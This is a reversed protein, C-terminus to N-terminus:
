QRLHEIKADLQAISHQLDPILFDPTTTTLQTAQLQNRTQTRLKNLAAIPHTCARSTLVLADPTALAPRPPPILMSPM